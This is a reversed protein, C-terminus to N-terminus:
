SPQEPPKVEEAAGAACQQQNERPILEGTLMRLVYTCIEEQTGTSKAKSTPKRSGQNIFRFM